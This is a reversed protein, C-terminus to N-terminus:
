LPEDKRIEPNMLSEENGIHKMMETKVNYLHHSYNFFHSIKSGVNSSLTEDDDWRKPDVPDIIVKNIFEKGCIFALDTWQTKIVDGCDVAEVNTFCPQKTRDPHSFSLCIKQSDDIGDWLKVAKEIFNECLEADDPLLIYYDYDTKRLEDFIFIFKKWAEKKGYNKEFKHFNFDGGIDFSSNDDWVIIDFGYLQNILNVLM